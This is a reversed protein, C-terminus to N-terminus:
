APRTGLRVTLRSSEGDRLIGLPVSAGPPHDDIAAQLESPSAVETGDVSVVVDGVELGAGDAPSGARVESVEVGSSGDAETVSVGLYAHEVTGGDVLQAVITEVTDAPIAFGVGDSGGSESAIQANVGIVRGELDLLPGGSNGHNIAADTQISDNITFGNPAEMSRGLASVIGTTVTNELGFPSGIAVVPDGVGVESSDALALPEPLAADAEVDLVALDTSADSAVVTASRTEGSSFRVEVTEAGDVVHANTVIHGEDDYVFGSGQAEATGGPAGFPDTETAGSVTLEVVSAHARDYVQAVALASTSAVPSGAVVRVERVAPDDLVAYTAAGASAALAFASTLAAIRILPRKM